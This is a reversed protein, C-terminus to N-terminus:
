SGTAGPPPRTPPKAPFHLRIEGRRCTVHGRLLTTLGYSGNDRAYREGGIRLFGLDLLETLCALVRARTLGRGALDQSM